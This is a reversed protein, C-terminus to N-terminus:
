PRRYTGPSLNTATAVIAGSPSYLLLKLALASRRVVAQHPGNYHLGEAWCRWAQDSVDIRADIEEIPPVGLPEDEGALLAFVARQGATLTVDARFSCDDQETIHINPTCRLLSSCRASM